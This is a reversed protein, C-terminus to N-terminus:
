FDVDTIERGTVLTNIDYAGEYTYIPVLDGFAKAVYFDSIIGNGGLLERGLAVSERARLTIWSKGLSAHGPTMKVSEYLKCLRWGILFMAQINALMQVLKQQNLWHPELNSERKCTDASTSNGIWRKQGDLIWGGEVQINLIM